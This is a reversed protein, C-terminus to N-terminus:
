PRRVPRFGLYYSRNGPNGIIRQASRCVVADDGWSGGRTVRDTGSSAGTPDTQASSPYSGAWDWCLECVNGSMDYLGLGNAAKTGVRHTTDNSAGSNYYRWWAVEGIDNSGAYTYGGPSGNGGRAAYEWEAETPLRYGNKTMDITVNASEIPYGTSPSRGTITYVTALGERESLKNCFEVADYWNIREVPLSPGSFYSPSSSTVTQYQEQTVEYKSMFFGTIYVTHVPRENPYLSTSSGMQFSGGPVGVMALLPAITTTTTTMGSGRVVRFGTDDYRGSRTTGNRNTVRQHIQENMVSGGRIVASDYPSSTPGHPDTKESATYDAFWDWCWEWVNGSMDYLGLENFGLNAIPHTTSGANNWYWAVDSVTNSGSYTFYHTASGGRAAYEWEAETPLRYGNRSFDATVTTGSITYVPDYGRSVSAANCFAVADYWSVKEVPRSDANAGSQFNSPNSGMVTRYEGQTVESPSIFFSSLNVKFVPVEDPEGTTSGIYISGAPVEVM